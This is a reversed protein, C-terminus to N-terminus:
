RPLRPLMYDTLETTAPPDFNSLVVVVYGGGPEFALDGSMGLAGGSHGVDDGRSSATLSGTLTRCGRQRLAAVPKDIPRQTTRSGSAQAYVGKVQYLRGGSPM